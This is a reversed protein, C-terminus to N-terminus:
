INLWQQTMAIAVGQLYTVPPVTKDNIGYNEMDSKYPVADSYNFRRNVDQIMELPAGGHLDSIVGHWQDAYSPDTEMKQDHEAIAAVMNKYTSMIETQSAFTIEGEEVKMGFDLVEGELDERLKHAVYAHNQSGFALGRDSNLQGQYAANTFIERLSANAQPVEHNPQNGILDALKM